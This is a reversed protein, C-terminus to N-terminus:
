KMQKKLAEKVSADFSRASPSPPAAKEQELIFADRRAVLAELQRALEKRESAKADLYAAQEAASMNQMSQPLETKPLEALKKRGEGVDAVLDGDGTIVAEGKRSKSVFAAMDAAEPAPAAAALGARSEVDRQRASSGYPILTLNLKRQIIRIEDDYPTVIVAVRGGDQPIALYEGRGLAAMERWLQRTVPDSGAQVANVVIGKQVAEAIIEPYKRDQKYDMHPPADGVLFLIRDAKIQNKDSWGLRTVAVDLAENVSEPTDGGGDARFALLKAYIHQIDTTLPYERTVYEDGIDRYGVLGFRIEADPYHDVIANAISWIKRKAGDILGAMSGTTDLVFAVEVRRTAADALAPFAALFALLCLAAMGPRYPTSNM